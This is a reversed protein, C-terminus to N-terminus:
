FLATVAVSAGISHIPTSRSEPTGNWLTYTYEPRSYGYEVGLRVATSGGVARMLGLGAGLTPATTADIHIDSNGLTTATTVSAGVSGKATLAWSRSLPQRFWASADAEIFDMPAGSIDAAANVTLPASAVRLRGGVGWRSSAFWVGEVATAAVAGMDLRLGAMSAPLRLRRGSRIEMGIGLFSPREPLSWDLTRARYDASLGRDRFILDTLFYGLNTATIGLGAGFIVDGAWHRGRMVRSLGVAGAATYAGVTYWPSRWGLERSMIAACTFATATHGSPFADFGEADPRREGVAYKLGEGLSVMLAGSFASSVAFRGWSSRTQAGCLKMVATLALPTYPVLNDITSNAHSAVPGSASRVGSQALSSVGGAVLLPVGDLFMIRTQRLSDAHEGALGSLAVVAAAIVSMIRKMGAFIHILM